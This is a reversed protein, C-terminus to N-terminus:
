CSASFDFCHLWIQFGNNYQTCSWRPQGRSRDPARTLYLFILHQYVNIFADKKLITIHEPAQDFFPAVVQPLKQEGKEVRGVTFTASIRYLVQYSPIRIFHGHCALRVFFDWDGGEELHPDFLDAAEILKRRFLLNSGSAVFCDVILPYKFFPVFNSLFPIHYHDGRDVWNFLLLM